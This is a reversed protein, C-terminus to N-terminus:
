KHKGNYYLLYGGLTVFRNGNQDIFKLGKPFKREYNVYCNKVFAQVQKIDGIGDSASVRSPVLIINNKSDDDETYGSSTSTVNITTNWKRDTAYCINVLKGNCDFVLAKYLNDVYSYTSMGNEISYCLFHNDADIFFTGNTYLSLLNISQATEMDPFRMNFKDSYAGTSALKELELGTRQKITTLLESESSNATNYEIIELSM